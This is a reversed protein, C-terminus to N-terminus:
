AGGLRSRKARMAMWAIAIAVLVISETVIRLAALANPRWTEFFATNFTM